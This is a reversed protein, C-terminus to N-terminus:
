SISPRIPIECAIVTGKKQLSTITLEGGLTLARYRMTNLGMGRADQRSPQFGQGDDTVTMCLTHDSYHLAISANRAAGHKAANSLAEKAIQYLHRTDASDTHRANGTQAFSITIDTQHSTTNALEELILGLDLGDLHHPFIRRALDRVIGSAQGVMVGIQDAKAAVVPDCPRLEDALFNAAYRIAALHPGLSDHLDSSIRQQEHETMALLQMELHKQRTVDRAIAYIEQRDKLPSATWRLYKWSGDKCRYRNEFSFTIAGTDLNDMVAVTAARDDPHVFDLFPGVRLEEHTWGLLPSWAPNLRKFKGDFGAICLLDPSENFFHLLEDAASVTAAPSIPRSQSSM